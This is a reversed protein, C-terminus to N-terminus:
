KGRFGYHPWEANEAYNTKIIRLIDDFSHPNALEYKRDWYITTVDFPYMRAQDFPNTHTQIQFLEDGPLKFLYLECDVLAIHIATFESIRIAIIYPETFNVLDFPSSKKGINYHSATGIRFIKCRDAPYVDDWLATIIAPLVNLSDKTGILPASLPGSLYIPYPLRMIM